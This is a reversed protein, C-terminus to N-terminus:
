FPSYAAIKYWPPTFCQNAHFFPKNIVETTSKRRKNLFVWGDDTLVTKSSTGNRHNAVSVPKPEGPSYGLHHSMEAGLAREIIAKKFKRTVAEVAEATMPGTVFQELLETPIDPLDPEVIKNRKSPM